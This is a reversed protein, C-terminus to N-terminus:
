GTCFAQSAEFEGGYSILGLWPIELKYSLTEINEELALMKPDFCNAIWGFCSIGQAKLAAATLLAHNICGLRLGVVLIVPIKAMKLFDLWTEEQNLPVMLGGAGEILLYALDQFLPDKCFEILKPLSIKQNVRSAALHPSLPDTFSYLNTPLNKFANIQEFHFVDENLSDTEGSAIPKLAHVRQGREQWWRMLAMTAYTKGCDTDTGTIFYSKM